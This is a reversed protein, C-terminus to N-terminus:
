APESTTSVGSGSCEDWSGSIEDDSLTFIGWLEKGGGGGCGALLAAAAALAVLRRTSRIMTTGRQHTTV